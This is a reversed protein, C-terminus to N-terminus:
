PSNLPLSPSGPPRGGRPWLRREINPWLALQRTEGTSAGRGHGTDPRIAPPDRNMASKTGPPRFWTRLTRMTLPGLHLRQLGLPAAAPGAGSTSRGSRGRCRTAAPSRIRTGPDPLRREAVRDLGDAEPGLRQRELREALRGTVECHRRDGASAVTSVRAVAELAFRGRRPCSEEVRLGAARPPERRCGIRASGQEAGLRLMESARWGERSRARIGPSESEDGLRPCHSSGMAVSACTLTPWGHAQMRASLPATGLVAGGARRDCKELAITGSHGSGVIGMPSTPPTRMRSALAPGSSHM